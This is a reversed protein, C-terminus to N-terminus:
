QGARGVRSAKRREATGQRPSTRKVPKRPASNKVTTRTAGTTRKMIALRLDFAELIAALTDLQPNGGPALTRYLSERNLNSRKALEAMGLVEAITRLAVPLLSADGDALIEDLYVVLDAPALFESARFPASAPATETTKGIPM